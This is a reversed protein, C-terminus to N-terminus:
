KNRGEKSDNPNAQSPAKYGEQRKQYPDQLYRRVLGNGPFLLNLTTVLRAVLQHRDPPTPMSLMATVIATSSASAVRTMAITHKFPLDFPLFLM